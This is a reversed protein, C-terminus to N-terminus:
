IDLREIIVFFSIYLEQKWSKREMAAMCMVKNIMRNFNEALGNAQPHRPTVPKHEIGMFRCYNKFSESDSPPGNDSKIGVPIGFLSILATVDQLM